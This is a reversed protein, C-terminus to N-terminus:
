AITGRGHVPVGGYLKASVIPVVWGRPHVLSMELMYGGGTDSVSCAAFLNLVSCTIQAGFGMDCGPKMLFQALFTGVFYLM